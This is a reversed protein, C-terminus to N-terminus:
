SWVEMAGEALAWLGALTAVLPLLCGRRAYEQRGGRGVRTTYRRGWGVGKRSM